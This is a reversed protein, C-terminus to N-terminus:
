GPLLAADLVRVFPEPAPDAAVGVGLGEGLIVEAPEAGPQVGGRSLAQAVAGGSLDEPGVDNAM